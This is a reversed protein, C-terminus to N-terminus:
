AIIQPLESAKKDTYITRNSRVYFMNSEYPAPVEANVDQSDNYIYYNKNGFKYFWNKNAEGGYKASNLNLASDKEILIKEFEEYDTGDETRCMLTVEYKVKAFKVAVTHNTKIDDFFKYVEQKNSLEQVEGDIVIESIEYGNNAKIYYEFKSGGEVVNNGIVSIGEQQNALIQGYNEGEAISIKITYNKTCGALLLAPLLLVAMLCIATLSKFFKKM